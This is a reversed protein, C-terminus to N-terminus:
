NGDWGALRAWMHWAAQGKLICNLKSNNNEPASAGSDPSHACGECGSYTDKGNVLYFLDSTNHKELYKTAWNTDQTGNGDSDYCLADTVKKNLFYNNDPDYNEIDAFDFLVRNNKKCHERILKNRSDSSDNEGGGEAHGTMFIFTVPHEIARPNTGNIGYEDILKEM